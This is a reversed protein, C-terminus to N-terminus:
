PLSKQEQRSKSLCVINSLQRQVDQENNWFSKRVSFFVSCTCGDDMRDPYILSDGSWKKLGHKSMRNGFMGHKVIGLTLHPFVKATQPQYFNGIIMGWAVQHPRNALKSWKKNWLMKHLILFISSKFTETFIKVVIKMTQFVLRERVLM